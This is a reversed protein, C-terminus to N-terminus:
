IWTQPKITNSSNQELMAVYNNDSSDYQSDYKENYNIVNVKQNDSNDINKHSEINNIRNGQQTTKNKGVYIQSTISFDVTTLKKM